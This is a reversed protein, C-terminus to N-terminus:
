MTFLHFLAPTQAVSNCIDNHYHEGPLFTICIIILILDEFNLFVAVKALTKGIFM